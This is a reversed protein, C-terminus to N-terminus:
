REHTNGVNVVTRGPRAPELRAPEDRIDARCRFLIVKQEMFWKALILIERTIINNLKGMHSLPLERRPDFRRKADRREGVSALLM